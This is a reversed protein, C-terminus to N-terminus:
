RADHWAGALSGFVAGVLVPWGPPLVQAALLAAGAAALWPVLSARGRWLLKLLAEFVAAAMTDLGYAAPDSLVQGIARGALTAAFWVVYLVLGGGLLYGLDPADGAAGDRGIGQYRTMSLGWNEDTMVFLAGYIWPRPAGPLRQALSAGMLLHRANVVFVAFILAAVPLPDAWVQLAVFQSAGAFVLLSMLGAEAPSLGAEGALFGFTLGFLGGGVALPLIDIAGRLLGAQTLRVM